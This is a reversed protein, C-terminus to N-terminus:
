FRNGFDKYHKFFETEYENSMPQSADFEPCSKISEKSLNVIVKSEEWNILKIWRLLILVKKGPM